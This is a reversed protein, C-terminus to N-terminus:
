SIALTGYTGTGPMTKSLNAAMAAAPAEPTPAARPAATLLAVGQAAALKAVSGREIQLQSGMRRSRLQGTSVYKRVARETRGLLRVVDGVRLWEGDEPPEDMWGGIM